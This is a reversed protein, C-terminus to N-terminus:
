HGSSLGHLAVSQHNRSPSPLPPPLPLLNTIEVAASPCSSQRSLYYHGTRPLLQASCKVLGAMRNATAYGSGSSSMWEDGSKVVVVVVVM